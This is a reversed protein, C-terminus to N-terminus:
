LFMFALILGAYCLMVKLSVILSSTDVGWSVFVLRLDKCLFLMKILFVRFFDFCRMKLLFVM